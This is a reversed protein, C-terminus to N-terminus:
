REIYEYESRYFTSPGVFTPLEFWKSYKPWGKLIRKDKWPEEEGIYKPAHNYFNFEFARFHNGEKPPYIPTGSSDITVQVKYTKGRGEGPSFQDFGKIFEVPVSDKVIWQEYFQHLPKGNKFYIISDYYLEPNYIRLTSDYVDGSSILQRIKLIVDKENTIVQFKLKNGEHYRNYKYGGDKIRHVVYTETRTPNSKFSVAIRIVKGSSDYEYHNTNYGNSL